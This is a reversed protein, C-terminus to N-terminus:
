DSIEDDDDADFDSIVFYHPSSSNKGSPLGSTASCSAVTEPRLHISALEEAEAVTMRKPKMMHSIKRLVESKEFGRSLLVDLALELLKLVADRGNNAEM